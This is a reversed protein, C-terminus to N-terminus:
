TRHSYWMVSVRGLWSNFARLQRQGLMTAEGEQIAPYPTRHRRTDLVFFAVDGYRFDYYYQGKHMSDYNASAHYYKFPSMANEYRGTEQQEEGSFNNLV